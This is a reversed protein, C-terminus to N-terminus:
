EEGGNVYADLRLGLERLEDSMPFEDEKMAELFMLGRKHNYSVWHSGAAGTLYELTYESLDPMARYLTACFVPATWEIDLESGTLECYEVMSRRLSEFPLGDSESIRMVLDFTAPISSQARDWGNAAILSDLYKFAVECFDNWVEHLAEAEAKQEEKRLQEESKVVTKSFVEVSPTSWASHMPPFVWVADEPIDDRKALEELGELGDASDFRRWGDDFKPRDEVTEIGLKECLQAFAAFEEMTEREQDLAQKVRIWKDGKASLLEEVADENDAYDAVAQLRDLSLQEAQEHVVSRARRIKAATGKPVNAASEAVSDDVGLSLMGQFGRSREVETLQMKNDTAMMQVASNAEDMDECVIGACAEILGALVMARYRREGDSIRYKSGDAILIIPNLPQHPMVPNFEFTAALAELDGFETRPNNPDPIIDTLPINQRLEM